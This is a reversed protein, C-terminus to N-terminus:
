RGHGCSYSVRGRRVVGNARVEPHRSRGFYPLVCHFFRRPQKSSYAERRARKGCARRKGGVADLDAHQHREGAVGRRGPLGGLRRDFDGGLDDVIRMGLEAIQWEGRSRTQRMQAARFEVDNEDIVLAIRRQSLL